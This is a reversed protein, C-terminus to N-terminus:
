RAPLKKIKLRSKLSEIDALDLPRKSNQKSRILEKIGVINVKVGEFTTIDRKKWASDFKIKSLDMIIDIRVPEVGIQYILNSDTFDKIKIGELPAGFEKLAAYVRAANEIEPKVWIDLDKTYRPETHYVVAYAGVILYRVKYKDLIKLLERYDSPIPM